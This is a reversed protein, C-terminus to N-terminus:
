KSRHIALKRDPTFHHELGYPKILVRMRSLIVTATTRGVGIDNALSCVNLSRVWSELVRLYSMSANEPLAEYIGPIASWDVMLIETITKLRRLAVKEAEQISSVPIGLIAFADAYTITGANRMLLVMAQQGLIYVAKRMATRQQITFAPRTTAHDIWLDWDQQSFEAM